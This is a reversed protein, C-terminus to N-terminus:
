SLERPLAPSRPERGELVILTKKQASYQRRIQRLIHKVVQEPPAKGSASNRKMRAVAPQSSASIREYFVQLKDRLEQLTGTILWDSPERSVQDTWFPLIMLCRFDNCIGKYPSAECDPCITDAALVKTDVPRAAVEAVFIPLAAALAVAGAFRMNKM